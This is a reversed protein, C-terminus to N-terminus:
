KHNIYYINHFSRGDTLKSMEMAYKNPSFVVFKCLMSKQACRLYTEYALQLPM